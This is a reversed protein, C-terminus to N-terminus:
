AGKMKEQGDIGVAKQIRDLQKKLATNEKKLDAADSAGKRKDIKLLALAGGEVAFWAFFSVILADPVTKEYWAFAFCAVTFATVQVFVFLVSLKSFTMGDEGMERGLLVAM